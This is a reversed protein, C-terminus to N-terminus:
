RRCRPARPASFIKRATERGPFPRPPFRGFRRRNKRFAAHATSIEALPSRRRAEMSRPRGSGSCHPFSRGHSCSNRRSKCIEDQRRERDSLIDAGVEDAPLDTLAPLTAPHKNPNAM